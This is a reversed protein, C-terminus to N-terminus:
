PLATLLTFTLGTVASSPPQTQIGGYNGEAARIQIVDNQRLYAVTALKITFITGPAGGQFIDYGNFDLTHQTSSNYICWYGYQNEGIGGVLLSCTISYIGAYPTTFNGSSMPNPNSYVNTYNSVDVSWTFVGGTPAAISGGPAIGVGEIASYTWCYAGSPDAATIVPNSMTITNTLALSDGSIGSVHLNSVHLNNWTNATSGLDMSLTTSPGMAASNIFINSTDNAGLLIQGGPIIPSPTLLPGSSFNTKVLLGNYGGITVNGHTSPTYSIINTSSSGQARIAFTGSIDSVGGDITTFQNQGDNGNSVLTIRGNNNNLAFLGIVQNQSTDYVGVSGYMSITQAFSNLEIQDQGVTVIPQGSNSADYSIINGSTQGLYLIEFLNSGHVGGDMTVFSSGQNGSTNVYIRSKHNFDSELRISQNNSVDFLVIQGGSSEDVLNAFRSYYMNQSTDTYVLPGGPGQNLNVGPGTPGTAGTNAGTGDIGAPGTPGTYGIPGTAGTNAGTGDIGAPGTPGTYGTSGIPGTAGTNAGTGDIGAPGTAGTYGTPGIPGTAGTNSATGHLGQPGTAGTCGTPGTYGTFGTGGGGTMPVWVSNGQQDMSLVYGPFVTQNTLPNV